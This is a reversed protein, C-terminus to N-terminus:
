LDPKRSDQIACFRSIIDAVAGALHLAMWHEAEEIIQLESGPIAAHLRVAHAPPFHKDRGAWLVLTPCSIEAYLEPLRRLMGQYGACMRIIFRRVDKERFCRWLDDRLDAPLKFDHPLFTREARRFAAAPLRELILQNWKFKRLLTIEWSTKVDWFALCNSAVLFSVRNPHLAAFALAPQAGMDTAIIGAREISWTDMLEVLRDAMHYPTAGGPWAESRGMGPWDFAIVQFKDALRPALECWIQLNDPYGHLLILPPGAGLRAVRLHRGDRHIEITTDLL